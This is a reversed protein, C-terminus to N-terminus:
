NHSSSSSNKFPCQSSVHDSQKCRYCIRPNQCTAPDHKEGCRYCRKVQTKNQPEKSDIKVNFKRSAGLDEGNLALVKEKDSENVTIFGVGKCGSDNMVLKVLPDPVEHDTLFSSLIEPTASNALGWVFLKIKKPKATKRNRYLTCDYISHESSGCAKCQYGDPLERTRKKSGEEAM